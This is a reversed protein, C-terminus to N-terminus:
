KTNLIYRNITIEFGFTDCIFLFTYITTCKFKRCESLLWICKWMCLIHNICFKLCLKKALNKIFTNYANLVNYMNKYYVKMKINSNNTCLTLLIPMFILLYNYFTILIISEIKYRFYLTYNYLKNWLDMSRIHENIM